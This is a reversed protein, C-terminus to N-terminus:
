EEVWVWRVPESEGAAYDLYYRGKWATDGTRDYRYGDPRSRWTQQHVEGDLPGGRCRANIALSSGVRAGWLAEVGTITDHLPSDTLDHKM